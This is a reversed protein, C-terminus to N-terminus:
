EFSWAGFEEDQFARMPEPALWPVSPDNGYHQLCIAYKEIASRYCDWGHTWHLNETAGDAAGRVYREFKRARIEPVRGQQVFVWILAHEPHEAFATLWKPEPEGFVKGERVLRKAHRVAELEMRGQMHYRRGIMTRAVAKSIPLDNQNSFTKVEIESKVKLYDIRSKARIGTEEDTYFISVEPYGGNFASGLESHAHVTRAPVEINRWQEATLVDKGENAAFWEKMVVPWLKADPEKELIRACREAITGGKTVGLAACREALQDGTELYNGDNEPKVAFRANFASAGELIRTHFARGLLQAKTDEDERTPDVYHAWATLPSILMDKGFHFSFRREALYQEFPLGFYVGDDLLTAPQTIRAISNM